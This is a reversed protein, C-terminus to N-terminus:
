TTAQYYRVHSMTYIEKSEKASAKCDQYSDELRPVKLRSHARIFITHM